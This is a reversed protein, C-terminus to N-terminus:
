DRLEGGNVASDTGGDMVPFTPDSEDLYTEDLYTEDLYTEDLYTETLYTATRQALDRRFSFFGDYRPGDPGSAVQEAILVGAWEVGLYVLFWTDGIEAAKSSHVRLSECDPFAQDPSGFVHVETDYTPFRRYRDWTGSDGRLNSLQQFGTFLTGPESGTALHEIQHSARLLPLKGTDEVVYVGDDAARLLAPRDPADGAWDTDFIQGWVDPSLYASLESLSGAEICEGDDDHLVAFGTPEPAPTRRVTVDVNRVAFHRRVTEVADDPGDRTFLTLTRRDRRVSDLVDRVM